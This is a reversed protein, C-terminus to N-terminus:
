GQRSTLSFRIGFNRLLDFTNLYPINFTHCVVPILIKKRTMPNYREETVVVFGYAKAYAIVWADAREVQAFENIAAPRFRHNQSNAWQIITRYEQLVLPDQTSVFYPAFKTQAWRSLDDQRKTLERKVRDVSLLHGQDALTILLEWFAPALDFAYYRQFAEIFVNADLVYRM